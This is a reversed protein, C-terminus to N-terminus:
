PQEENWRTNQLREKLCDMREHIDWPLQAQPGSLASEYISLAEGYDRRALKTQGSELYIDGRLSLVTAVDFAFPRVTGDPGVCLGLHEVASPRKPEVSESLEDLARHLELLAESERNESRLSLARAIAQGLLNVQRMIHDREFMPDLRPKSSLPVITRGLQRFDGCSRAGAKSIASVTTREREHAANSISVESRTV